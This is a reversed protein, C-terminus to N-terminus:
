GRAAGSGDHLAAAGRGPRLAGDLDAWLDEVHEIGLSLRLLGEPVDTCESPFKRRRELLSTVDGLSTGHTWLAVRDAVAEAAKAGGRVEIAVLTGWGPWRVREVAPHGELRAALEAANSQAREVRLALTRLGRLALFAELTGPVAGRETRARRLADLLEPRNAAAVGILADSHGSLQKTASHLVVDAGDALPHALVPTALTSDVVVIGGPRIAAAVARVDVAELLPNTLNEVWVADCDALMTRAQPSAPSGDLEVVTFRGDGAARRLAEAAEFYVGRPVGVAGGRPLLDIVAHVAAMGSAYSVAGAAGELAAVAAEFPEWAPGGARAYGNEGGAHFTASLVLPANLPAGPGRVPRGAHAATTEIREVGGVGETGM